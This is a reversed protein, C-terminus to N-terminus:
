RTLHTIFRCAPLRPDHCVTCDVLDKVLAPDTIVRAFQEGAGEPKGAIARESFIEGLVSEVLRPAANLLELLGMAGTGPQELDETVTVQVVDTVAAATRLKFAPGIGGVVVSIGVGGYEGLHSLCLVQLGRQILQRGITTEHEHHHEHFASGALFGGIFQLDRQPGNERPQVAGPGAEACPKFACLM